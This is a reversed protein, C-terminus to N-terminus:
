LSPLCFNVFALKRVHEMLGQEIGILSCLQEMNRPAGEVLKDARPMERMYSDATRQPEGALSQRAPHILVAERLQLDLSGSAM